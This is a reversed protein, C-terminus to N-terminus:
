GAELMFPVARKACFLYSRVNLDFIEDYVAEDTDLFDSPHVVGANNVLVDLGGLAEAADKVARECESIARLDAQVLALEGGTLRRIKAATKNAGRDNHAYHGALYAGRQALEVIIDQGPGVGANTILVRKGSLNNM